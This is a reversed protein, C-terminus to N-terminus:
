PTLFSGMTAGMVVSSKLLCCKLCMKAPWETHVLLPDDGQINRELFVASLSNVLHHIDGDLNEYCYHCLVEM